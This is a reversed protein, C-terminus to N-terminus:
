RAEQAKAAIGARAVSKSMFLKAGMRFVGPLEKKAALHFVQRETLGYFKAIAAASSVLDSSLGDDVHEQKPVVETKANGM